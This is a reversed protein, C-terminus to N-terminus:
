RSCCSRRVSRLWNIPLVPCAVAGLTWQNGSAPPQFEARGNGGCEIVLQLSVTEFRRKLEAITFSKRTKASEGSVTLTWSAPDVQAPPIGNNRVFMREAPTVRDDLLWAPTEANVPRDNLVTLRPDKGPLTFASSENALAAPILGAPMVHHFVIEAGLVASMAGLGRLFGRRSLPDSERGFVARDAAVPDAAYLAHLGQDRRKM